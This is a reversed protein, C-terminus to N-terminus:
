TLQVSSLCFAHVSFVIDNIQINGTDGIDKSVLGQLNYISYFYFGLPNLLAFELSFGAVSKSNYNMIGQPYFSLSWLVFSIWGCSKAAIDWSPSIEHTM